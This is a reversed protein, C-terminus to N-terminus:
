YKFQNFLNKFYIYRKDPEDSQFIASAMAIKNAGAKIAGLSTQENAGGDIEIDIDKKLERLKAIKKEMGKIYKQGSKGPHVTMLLIYDVDFLKNLISLPTDPNLAFCLKSDKKEVLSAIDELEEITVSELHVQFISKKGSPLGKIWEYPNQVMLHYEIRKELPLISYDEVFYTKNKVFKGDMIDIQLSEASPVLEVKNEFEKANKALIAPIVEIKKTKEM